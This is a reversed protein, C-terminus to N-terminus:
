VSRAAEVWSALREVSPNEFFSVLPLSVGLEREVRSVLHVALLSHGGIDFFDRDVSVSARGLVEAYLAALARETPTRPLVLDAEVPAADESPAPLAKRDVKGNPTLPLAELLVFESPIMHEPLRERLAPLLSPVLRARARVVLPASTADGPVPPQVPAWPQDTRTFVADVRDTEGSAAVAVEVRYGLAEGLAHLDDLAVGPRQHGDPIQPVRLRPPRTALRARLADLDTWPATEAVAVPRPPGVHLVADYRWASMENTARGRRRLLRVDGVGAPRQTLFWGPSVMLEEEGRVRREVDARWAEDALGAASATAESQRRLLRLDRVDAVIVVGGPRTAAVASQLVARLHAASPLYQIVSSLLVVDYGQGHPADAAEVALEVNEPVAGRLREIAVSSRDTGRYRRVHPALRHLLLGTGCGLELVTEPRQELVLRATSEVWERMQEPPIPRGDVASRWGRIDFSPDPIEGDAWTRDWIRSWDDVHAQEAAADGEAPVIWACLRAEEGVMRPHVVAAAVGPLRSLVAEVEGPEVRHGRIKVQHDLRGLFQLRGDPLWRARDGTRYVRGGPVWPDALFRAATDEPLGWYGEAVGPGGIWLEGPVGVPTPQGWRDVVYCRTNRIPRGITVPESASVAGTTSWITTETPGYMNEVALGPPLAALLAPPLPEGGLLLQRLPALASPDIARLLSPTCQLHTVGHRRIQAAIGREQGESLTAQLEALHRVSALAADTPVGFDLLAGIEDVGAEALRRVLPLVSRPTGFLGAEHVFRRYGHRVMADIEDPSLSALASEPALRAVLQGALDLSQRLYALFPERALELAEEADEALLTHLMLAVRGRGPHGAAAWADRYVRVREALGDIGQGLLHTLLFFGGEGAARFTEPNGAATIWIPLEAQVPPPYLRAQVEGAGGPFSVAEGRWLRRLQEIGEFTRVKRDKYADPAFVFDNAHWGSAVALQVRGDSLNDVVSWEEALRLPHHLPVVVSGSRLSIRRTIAAVAAATVSPNPYIGGFRDLHREPMWVAELGAEDAIKAGELLLRYAERGRAGSESAFYFLSFRLASAPEPASAEVLGPQVVVTWGRALTWLLELVSIDFSVSTLALWVGPPGPIRDDMGAFFSVVNDHRVAVGRPRGTSGSTYLIYALDTPAAEDAPPAADEGQPALVPLDLEPLRAAHSGDSVLAALGADLVVHQLRATPFDPDLPVYAAGARLAGLMAVVLSAGRRVIVGVRDGRRVGAARLRGALAGAARWLAAYDLRQDEGVVALKRPNAAAIAGIAGHVTGGPLPGATANFGVLVTHREPAPLLPLARVPTHPAGAAAGLLVLLHDRLREITATDWLDHAFELFGFITGGPQDWLDLTLDFKSSVSPLHLPTVTLGAATQPVEPFRFLAFSVQFIPNASADRKVKLEDVLLEFPLEQHAFAGNVTERAAEMLARFPADPDIKTRLALVNVLFGFVRELEPQGRAAIPTGVVVDEHGAWRSLVACLGALVPVYLTTGAERALARLAEATARPLELRVRSGRFSPRAPRPRDTPLNLPPAEALKERWFAVDEPRVARRQREWAAVDIMQLGPPPLPDPLGRTAADLLAVLDQALMGMSLADTNIHHSCLLLVHREPTLAFLLARLLRGEGLEWPRAQEEEVVRWLTPEREPEPLHSLEVVPLRLRWPPLVRQVPEDGDLTFATRLATHRAVLGGLATELAEHRLPGDLRVGLSVGYAPTGPFLREFLFLQRQAFSLPAPGEGVRPIAGPAAPEEDMLLGLLELQEPSLGELSM